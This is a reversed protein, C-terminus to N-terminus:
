SYTELYMNDFDLHHIAYDPVVILPMGWGNSTPNGLTKLWSPKDMYCKRLVLVDFIYADEYDGILFQITNDKRWIGSQIMRENDANSKEELEIYLRKTRKCIQDLKIEVGERNEGKLQEYKGEHMHLPNPFFALWKDVIFEEYAKGLAKKRKYELTMEM